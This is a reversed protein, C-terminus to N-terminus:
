PNSGRRRWDNGEKSVLNRLKVTLVHLKDREHIGFPLRLGGKRSGHSWAVPPVSGPVNTDENHPSYPDTGHRPGSAFIMRM